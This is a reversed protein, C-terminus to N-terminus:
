ARALRGLLQAVSLASAGARLATTVEDRTPRFVVFSQNAVGHADALPLGSVGAEDKGVGAAHAVVAKARRALALAVSVAGAFSAGVVVDGPGVTDDCYTLSDMVLVRGAPASEEVRIRDPHPPTVPAEPKRSCGALFLASRVLLDRRSM